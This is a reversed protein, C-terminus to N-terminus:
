LGLLLDFKDGKKAEAPAGSAATSASQGSSPGSKTTKSGQSTRVTAKPPAADTSRLFQLEKERSAAKSEAARVAESLLEAKDFNLKALKKLLTNPAEFNGMETAEGDDRQNNDVDGAEAENKDERGGGRSRSAPLMTKPKSYAVKKVAYIEAEAEALKQLRKAEQEKLRREFAGANCLNGKQYRQKCLSCMRKKEWFEDFSQERKCTPCVLKDHSALYDEKASDMQLKEMKSQAKDNGFARDLFGGEQNNLRDIFDYGCRPNRMANEAQKSRAPKFTEEEAEPDVIHSLDLERPESMAGIRSLSAQLDDVQLDVPEPIKLKGNEDLLGYLRAQSMGITLNGSQFVPKCHPHQYRREKKKEVPLQESGALSRGEVENNGKMVLVEPEGGFEDMEGAYNDEEFEYEDAM